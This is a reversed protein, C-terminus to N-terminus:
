PRAWGSGPRFTRRSSHSYQTYFLIDRRRELIGIEIHSAEASALRALARLAQYLTPANELKHLLSANLNHDGVFRGAHWGLMPDVHRTTADFFAWVL